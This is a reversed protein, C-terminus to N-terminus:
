DREELLETLGLLLLLLPSPEAEGRDPAPPEPEARALGDTDLLRERDWSCLLLETPLALAAPGLWLGEAEALM